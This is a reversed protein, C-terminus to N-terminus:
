NLAALMAAAETVSIERQELRKMIKLRDAQHQRDLEQLRTIIQDLRNRVTPYSIQMIRGVEKLSGASLVFLEIFDRDEASLRALRPLELQGSLTMGCEPCVIREVQLSGGCNQCTASFHDM